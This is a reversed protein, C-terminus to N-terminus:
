NLPDHLCASLRLREENLVRVRRGSVAILGKACLNSLTRSVAEPTTGLVQALETRTEALLFEGKAAGALDTRKSAQLLRTAMRANVTCVSICHMYDEARGLELAFRQALLRLTDPNRGFISWFHHPQLFRITADEMVEGTCRYPKEAFFSRDGLLDPGQVIRVIQRRGARDEKILKVRGSSIFHLGLPLNDQYFLVNGPRYDHPPALELFRRWEEKVAHRLLPISQLPQTQPRQLELKM